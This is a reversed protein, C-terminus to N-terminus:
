TTDGMLMPAFFALGCSSEWLRKRTPPDTAVGFSWRWLGILLSASILQIRRIAPLGTIPRLPTSQTSRRFDCNSPRTASMM